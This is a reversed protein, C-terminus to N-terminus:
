SWTLNPRDGTGELILKWRSLPPPVVPPPQDPDPIPPIDGGAIKDLDALLMELSARSPAMKDLGTWVTEPVAVYCESIWRRSLWADWTILYVRGWSSVYVGKEDYGCPGVDHGGVFRGTATQPSWVAASLWGQPLNLGIGGGGFLDIAVRSLVPDTWNVAVYGRIKYVKGSARFGETRIADFVDTIICGSDGPGAKWRNYQSVIEQDTAFVEGGSDTDNAAWVGLNHANRAIVCCGMQDNKYMRGLSASAKGYWDVKQRPIVGLRDVYNSLSLAAPRTKALVCGLYVTQPLEAMLAPPGPLIGTLAEGTLTVQESVYQGEYNTSVGSPSAPGAM